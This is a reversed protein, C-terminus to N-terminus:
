VRPRSYELNRSLDIKWPPDMITRDIERIEVGWAARGVHRYAFVTYARSRCLLLCYYMTGRRRRCFSCFTRPFIQLWRRRDVSDSQKRMSILRELTHRPAHPRRAVTFRTPLIALVRPPSLGLRVRYRLLVKAPRGYLQPAMIYIIRVRNSFFIITATCVNRNAFPVRNGNIRRPVRM